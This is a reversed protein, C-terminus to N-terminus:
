ITHVDYRLIEPSFLLEIEPRLKLRSIELGTLKKLWNSCYFNRPLGAPAKGAVTASDTVQVRTHPFCGPTPSGDSTFRTSLHLHDYTRLWPEVVWNRWEPRRIIYQKPRTRQPEFESDTEDDSMAEACLHSWVETAM